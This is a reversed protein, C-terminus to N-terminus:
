SNARGRRPREPPLPPIEVGAARAFSELRRLAAQAKEDDPNKQLELQQQRAESALYAPDAYRTGRIGALISADRERAQEIETMVTRCLDAASRLGQCIGKAREGRRDRQHGLLEEALKAGQELGAYRGQQFESGLHPPPPAPRKALRKRLLEVELAEKRLRALEKPEVLELELRGALLRLAELLEDRDEPAAELWNQPRTAGRPSPATETENELGYQEPLPRGLDRYILGRLYLSLGGARGRESRALPRLEELIEDELRVTIQDRGRRGMGCRRNTVHVREDPGSEGAERSSGEGSPVESPTEEEREGSAPTPQFSLAAVLEDLEDEFPEAEHQLVLPDLTEEFEDEEEDWDTDDWLAPDYLRLEIRRCYSCRAELEGEVRKRLVLRGPCRRGGPRCQCRLTTRRESRLKLHAGLRTLRELRREELERRARAPASKLTHKRRWYWGEAARVTWVLGGEAGSCAGTCGSMTGHCASRPVPALDQLHM